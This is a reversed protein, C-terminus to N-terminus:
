HGRFFGKYILQEVKDSNIYHYFDKHLESRNVNFSKDLDILLIYGFTKCLVAKENISDVHSKLLWNDEKIEKLSRLERIM